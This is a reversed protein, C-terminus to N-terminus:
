RQSWEATIKDLARKVETVRADYTKEDYTLYGVTM